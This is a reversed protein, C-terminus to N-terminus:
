GGRVDPRSILLFIRFLFSLRVHVAADAGALRQILKLKDICFILFLEGTFAFAIGTMGIMFSLGQTDWGGENLFKSFVDAATSRPAMEALVILIAFFGLVHILFVVGEVKPLWSSILINIGVAVLVWGWFLLTGQWGEIEYSPNNLVILGQVVTGTLYGGLALTAQWGM